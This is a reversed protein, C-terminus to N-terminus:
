NLNIQKYPSRNQPGRNERLRPGLDRLGLALRLSGIALSRRISAYHMLRM